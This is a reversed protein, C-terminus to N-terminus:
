RRRCLCGPAIATPSYNDLSFGDTVGDASPYGEGVTDVAIARLVYPNEDLSADSAAPSDDMITDELMASDVALPWERYLLDIPAASAGGVIANVLDEIIAIQVHSTLTTDALQVIGLPAWETDATRRVELQVAATNPHTMAQTFASVTIMGQAAGSDPNRDTVYTHIASVKPPLRREYALSVVEEHRITLKNTTVTRLMIHGGRDPLSYDGIEWPVTLEAGMVQDGEFKHLEHWDGDVHAEVVISVLPHATREKIYVTLNALSNSFILVDGSTYQMELGEIAGNGDFDSQVSTVLAVDADPPVFNVVVGPGRSSDVNLLSDVGVARLGYAGMLAGGESNRILMEIPGGGTLPLVSAPNTLLKALDLPFLDPKVVPNWSGPNGASDLKALQFLYGTGDPENSTAGVTSVTLSAEGPMLGTAVYSGDPHMYLGANMGPANPNLAVDATPPTRDVTFMQGNVSDTHGGRYVVTTDLQYAGDTDLPLTAVWLSQLNNVAPVSFVSRVNKLESLESELLGEITESLGDTILQHNRPDLHAFATVTLGTDHYPQSLEVWYYYAVTDGPRLAVDVSWGGMNDSAMAMPMQGDIRLEVSAFAPMEGSLLGVLDEKLQFNYMFSGGAPVSTASMPMGNLTFTVSEITPAGSIYLNLQDGTVWRGPVRSDASLAAWATPRTTIANGFSEKAIHENTPDFESPLELQFAGIVAFIPSLLLPLSPPLTVLPNGAADDGVLAGAAAVLGVLDANLLDLIVPDQIGTYSPNISLGGLELRPPVMMVPDIMLQQTRSDALQHSRLPVSIHGLFQDSARLVDVMLTDGTAAVPNVLDLFLHEYGGMADATVVVSASSTGDAHEITLTVPVGPAPTGDTEVVTGAINLVRIQAPESTKVDLTLLPLQLDAITLTHSESGVAEGADNSVAVTIVDGTEAVAATAGIFTLDYQGNDDVAGVISSNRTTNTATVSLQGERLDNSAAVPSDGNKLYVTGLLALVNTTLGIDTTINQTVKASGTTGLQVNSLAFEARGREGSGDSAVISVPDGTVAVPDTAGVFAASYVGDASTQATQSMSGVTVTVSLGGGASTTGDEKNVTGEVVLANVSRPPVVIDTTVSVMVATGDLRDNTLPLQTSGREVGAADTVVVSVLDGTRAVAALPNLLTVDFSGDTGTTRTESPNSGVTVTATVGDAPVGGDAKYVIGEIILLNVEIPPEPTLNLTVDASVGDTSVTIMETGEADVMPATYTATYSGFKAADATFAGVAGSGSAMGTLSAGGVGNGNSDTVMATITASGLSSVTDPSATLTIAAPPGANIVVTAMGSANANTATATITVNGAATGSTYTASYTGDGNNTAPSSVTGVNPSLRLTVNEDTVPGELEVTVTITGTGTTDAMFSAPSVAVTVTTSVFTINFTAEGASIDAATVTHTKEVSDGDTKTVVVNIQDGANIPTNSFDIYPLTYSGDAGTTVGSSGVIGFGPATVRAGAVPTGDANTVVGGIATISAHAVGGAILGCILSVALLYFLKKSSM